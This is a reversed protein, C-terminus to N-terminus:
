VEKISKINTHLTVVQYNSQDTALLIERILQHVEELLTLTEAPKQSASFINIAMTTFLGTLLMDMQEKNFWLISDHKNFGLYQQVCPDHLLASFAQLSKKKQQPHYWSHYGSLIKILRATKAAQEPSSGLLALTHSYVKELLIDDFLQMTEQGYNEKQKFIGLPQSILWLCSIIWNNNDKNVHQTLWSLAPSNLENDLYDKLQNLGSLKSIACDIVLKTKDPFNLLRALDNVIPTYKEELLNVTWNTQKILAQLKKHVPALIFEKRLIEIDTVGQGQLREALQRYQGDATDKVERFDAFVHFQYAELTVYIGQDALKRGSRIYELNTKYDRFIYYINFGSNIALGEALSKQVLKRKGATETPVSISTSTRVWGTTSAFKNHYIVLARENACRNSYAFVDENVSGNDVFFDYFVFNTVESFLHRKRMLPFIEAEHRRVLQEDVQEQWYARRYEMGYKETFGEIQGHGFMPLGPLTVLLLCVGFYKDGSGFQAIATEEDPNNMFNVFRRLIEPDFELVNKIVSRYKQNDEMKLMNMFASNYVRHMGLTRVFYGEMLWFAEALLLTDPVEQKIRDVVERWFEKPMLQDFDEKLMGREARSPIGGGTGPHPFWLRQYHRKALTMAADLRIIPFRRAVDVILKIVAERVDARLFNLQATDNWPMHTGDNGHYIYRTDGTWTDYRKFVVGADRKTWYGDELYVGVRQDPSLDPGNFSYNPFPSYKEQIFWDPHEVMWKSFIGMHNPVVDTALIIGRKSSRRKLEQFASEGGLDNSITYDYLSYASALAEPNGCNQKITTSASSREWIGILWLGTFGWRALLDLEEDPIENIKTISRQYKRSLQDLWVYTSKAILVVKSMWNRDRTFNEEEPYDVSGLRRFVPVQAPGPGFLRLQEEERLVDTVVLLNRLLEEPLLDGWHERIYELQKIVSYPFAKIPEWLLTILPQNKPGFGPQTAFFTELSRFTDLYSCKRKLAGDCFLEAAPAFAPNHNTLFLLIIEKAIIQQNPIHQSTGKLFKAASQQRRQILYPPFYDIFSRITETLKDASIKKAVWSLGQQFASPNKSQCYSYIIYRFIETILGVANLYGARLPQYAHPRPSEHKNIRQILLRVLRYDPLKIKDQEPFIGQALKYDDWNQRSLQFELPFYRQIIDLGPKTKNTKM